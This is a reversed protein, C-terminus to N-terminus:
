KGESEGGWEREERGLFVFLFALWFALWLGKSRCLIILMFKSHRFWPTYVVPLSFFVLIASPMNKAGLWRSAYEWNGIEKGREKQVWNSRDMKGFFFFREVMLETGSIKWVNQLENEHSLHVGTDFFTLDWATRWAGWEEQRETDEAYLLATYLKRINMNKIPM